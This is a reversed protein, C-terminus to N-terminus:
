TSPVEVVVKTGWGPASEVRAEGGAEAALESMLMLGFHPRGDDPRNATDFGEGNDRVVLIAAHDDQTLTLSVRDAGSHTAANRVSEQAARYVVSTADRSLTLEDDVEVSTDVGSAALPTLLDSLAAKLGIQELNAPYIESILTRLERVGERTITAADTIDVVADDPAVGSLRDGVAALSYSVGALSQIVGDHLDRAIRRRENDSAEIVKRHLAERDFQSQQLRSVLRWALPLQLLELALLALLFVPLLRNGNSLATPAIAPLEFYAEYLLPIGSPTTVRSYVQLLDGDYEGREFLNEASSTDVLEAFAAGTTLTSRDDDGLEFVKGILRQDDSYIITGDSAWLKIRLVGPELLLPRLKRDFTAISTPDGSVLGDTLSPEVVFRAQTSALAAADNVGDEVAANHLIHAGAVALLALVLLGGVAFQALAARPSFASGSVRRVGLLATTVRRPLRLAAAWWSDPADPGGDRTADDDASVPPLPASQVSRSM